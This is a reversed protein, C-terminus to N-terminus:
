GPNLVPLGEHRMPATRFHKRAGVRDLQDMFAQKWTVPELAQEGGYLIADLAAFLSHIRVGDVQPYAQVLIRGMETLTTHVPLGLVESGWALLCQRLAQADPAADIQKRLRSTEVWPAWPQPLRAALRGVAAVPRRFVPETLAGTARRRRHLQGSPSGGRVGRNRWAALSRAGLRRLLALWGLPPVAGATGGHLCRGRLWWGGAFAFAMGIIVPWVSGPNAEAPSTAPSSSLATQVPASVPDPRVRLSLGSWSAQALRGRGIDWWPLTITPLRLQGNRLPVLTLNDIRQGQLLQSNRVLRSSTRSKGPYIRFDPSQLLATADSLREGASGAANQVISIEIPQGVQLRQHQDYQLSVDLAYLPLLSDASVAPLAQVELSVPDSSFGLVRSSAQGNAQTASDLVARLQMPPLRLSGSSLPTLAFVFDTTMQQSGSRRTTRPPGALRELTFPPTNVSEVDLDTVAPSHSVRLRLIVTQQVYPRSESLQIDTHLGAVEDAIAPM